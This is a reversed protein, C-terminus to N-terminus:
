GPLAAAAPSWLDLLAVLAFSGVGLAVLISGAGVGAASAWFRITTKNDPANKKVDILIWVIGVLGMSVMFLGVTIM